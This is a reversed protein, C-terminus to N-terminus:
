YSRGCRVIRAAKFRCMLYWPMATPSYKRFVRRGARRYGQQVMFRHSERFFRNFSSEVSM